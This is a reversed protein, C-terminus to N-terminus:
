RRITLGWREMPEEILSASVRTADTDQEFSTVGIAILGDDTMAFVPGGSDGGDVVGRFNVISGEVSIFDGCSLGTRWGLHCIQPRTQELWASGRWGVLPEDFPPTSTWPGDHLEILAYDALGTKTYTSEVFEGIYSTSGDPHPIYVKDGTKGCHGATLIFDRGDATVIWGTSCYGGTIFQTGPQAKGAAALWQWDRANQYIPTETRTAPVPQPTTMQRPPAPPRMPAIDVTPQVTTPRVYQVDPRTTTPTAVRAAHPQPPETACGTLTAFGLMMLALLAGYKVLARGV